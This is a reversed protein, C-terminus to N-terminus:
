ALPREKNYLEVKVLPKNVIHLDTYVMFMEFSCCCWVFCCLCEFVFCWLLPLLINKKVTFKHLISKWTEKKSKQSNSHSKNQVVIQTYHVVMSACPMPFAAM